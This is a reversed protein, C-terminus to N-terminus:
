LTICWWCSLMWAGSFIWGAKVPSWLLIGWFYFYINLAYLVLVSWYLELQSYPKHECHSQLLICNRVLHSIMTIHSNGMKLYINKGIVCYYDLIPHCEFVIYEKWELNYTTKNKRLVYSKSNDLCLTRHAYCLSYIQFLWFSKHNLVSPIPILSYHVM